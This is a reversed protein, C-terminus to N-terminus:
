GSLIESIMKDGEGHCCTEVLIQSGPIEPLILQLPRPSLPGLLEFGFSVLM